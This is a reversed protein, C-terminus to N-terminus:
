NKSEFGSLYELRAAEHDSYKSSFRHLGKDRDRVVFFIFDTNDPHFAAELAYYGPNSIAGPPLGVHQYTNYDSPVELDDFFLRDRHDQGMEETLVYMVTACSQLMMGKDLRNYFVSAIKKVESRSKYEREVISALIVKDALQKPTLKTYSPYIEDMNKFFNKLFSQVVLLAPYDEQFSYTDPFLFGEATDFPINFVELLNKNKIAELFEDSSVVGKDELIKAIKSSTYGEPITVSILQQRGELLIAYIEEVSHSPSIEYEGEKLKADYKKYIGYYKFVLEDKILSKEYLHSSISSLTEGKEVFFSVKKTDQSQPELSQVIYFIGFGTAILVIISFFIFFNKM